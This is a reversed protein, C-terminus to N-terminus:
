AGALREGLKLAFRAWPTATLRALLKRDDTVMAAGRQEALAVYCCDHAPHGLANAIELTRGILDMTPVFKDLVDPLGEVMARAQEATIQGRRLKAWAANCVEAAILDPALLVQGRAILAEAADSGPETVFWKCAVSADVVFM